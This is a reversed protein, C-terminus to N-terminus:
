VHARGIQDAACLGLMGVMRPRDGLFTIFGLTVLSLWIADATIAGMATLISERSRGRSAATAMVAMVPGPPAALTIGLVAGAFVEKM